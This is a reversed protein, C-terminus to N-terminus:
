PPSGVTVQHQDLIAPLGQGDGHSAPVATVATV